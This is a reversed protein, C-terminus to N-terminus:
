RYLAEKREQRRWQRRAWVSWRWHGPDDRLGMLYDPDVDIAACLQWLAEIRILEPLGRTYCSLITQLSWGTREAILTCPIKRADVVHRFRTSATELIAARSRRSPKAQTLM